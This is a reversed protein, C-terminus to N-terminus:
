WFHKADQLTKNLQTLLKHESYVLILGTVQLLVRLKIQQISNSDKSELRNWFLEM